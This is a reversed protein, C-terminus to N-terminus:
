GVFGFLRQINRPVWGHVDITSFIDILEQEDLVLKVIVPFYNPFSLLRFSKIDRSM